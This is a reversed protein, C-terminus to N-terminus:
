YVKPLINSRVRECYSNWAQGYKRKNRQNIQQTRIVLMLTTMVPLYYPILHSVGAPLVWSWQILVEGLYNPHRVLGWWGSVILKKNGAATAFTELHALSPNAPDKAFECRQTESSRYIVYGLANMVGIALLYYWALTVTHNLLYVTTLTPLFPFTIYSSILSWGYGSNMADHSQFYYEEFFLADMAYLLQFSAALVLSPAAQGKAEVVSHTVLLVNLLALSIMSMRFTQLKFDLGFHKPNLERGNFLDVIPNGTHGKPNQNTKNGWRSMILTFLAVAYSYLISSTMLHYYKEKVVGLPVKYYVLAPVASLLILLTLFGNMRRGNVPTGVPLFSLLDLLVGVGFVVLLSDRDVYTKWDTSLKPLELRCGQDRCLTHLSVLIAPGLVMFLIAWIWELSWGGSKRGRADPLEPNPALKVKEAEDDSFGEHLAKAAIRASTRTPTEAKIEKAKVKEVKTVKEVKAVKEVVAVAAAAAAPEKAASDAQDAPKEEQAAAAQPSEAEKKAGRPRGPSRGRSKSRARKMVASTQKYVDRARITYVTGNEYEVDYEGDDERVYTVKAKFFLSSGPWRAMVDDGEKFLM